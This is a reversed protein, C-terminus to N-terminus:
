ISPRKPARKPTSQSLAKPTSKFQNEPRKLPCKQPSNKTIKRLNLMNQCIKNLKTNNTYHKLKNEAVKVYKLKNQVLKHQFPMSILFFIVPSTWTSQFKQCASLRQVENSSEEVGQKVHQWMSQCIPCANLSQMNNPLKLCHVRKGNWALVPEKFGQCNWLM